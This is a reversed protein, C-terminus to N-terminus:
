ICLKYEQKPAPLLVGPFILPELWSQFNLKTNKGIQVHSLSNQLYVDLGSGKHIAKHQTPDAGLLSINEM